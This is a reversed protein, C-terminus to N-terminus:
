ATFRRHKPVSRGAAHQRRRVRFATGGSVRRAPVKSHRPLAPKVPGLKETLAPRHVLKHHAVRPHGSFLLIQVRLVVAEGGEADAIVADVNVVAQGAPVPIPGPQPEGQGGAAAPSVNTTVFSSRSARDNGSARSM